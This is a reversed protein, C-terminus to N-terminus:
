LTQELKAIQEQLKAIKAATGTTRTRVVLGAADYEVAVLALFEERHNDTLTRLARARCGAMVTTRDKSDM